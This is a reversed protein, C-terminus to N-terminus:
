EKIWASAIAKRARYIRIKVNELSLGTIQAIEQYSLGEYERLIIVERLSENLSAILSQVTRVEEERVLSEFPSADESLPEDTIPQAMRHKRLSNFIFNRAIGLLWVRLVMGNKLGDLSLQMRLFAEQVADHALEEDKTFRISYNFVSGRHRSFIAAIAERSGRRAKAVLDEDSPSTISDERFSHM